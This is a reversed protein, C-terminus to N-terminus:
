GDAEDASGTDGSEKGRDRERLQELNQRSDNLATEYMTRQAPTLDDRALLEVALAEARQYMSRAKELDRQLCHQYIVATDNLLQPNEPELDLARYYATLSAEYIGIFYEQEVPDRKESQQWERQARQGENRLFLGANSWYDANTVAVEALVESLMAGSLFKQQKHCWGALAGIWALHYDQNGGQIVKIIMAPDASWGKTMAEVAGEYEVSNHRALAIYFWADVYRPDKAVSALFAKESDRSRGLEMYTYGLWWLATADDTKKKSHNKAYGRTGKELATLFHALPEEDNEGVLAGRIQAVDVVLPAWALAKGYADAAEARMGKWVLTHGLQVASLGLLYQRNTDSRPNGLCKVAASFAHRAARWQAEVEEDWAAPDSAEEGRALQFRSLAIRGKMLHVEGDRPWLGVARDISRGALDLQQGHWAARALPLWADPFEEPAAELARQLYVVADEFNMRISLDAVGAALNGQARRVHAMGYLYDMVPGTRGEARFADLRDLTDNTRGQDMWARLLWRETQFSGGDAEFAKRFWLEASEPKGRELHKRGKALLVAVEGTPEDTEDQVSCASAHATPPLALAAFALLSLVTHLRPKKM